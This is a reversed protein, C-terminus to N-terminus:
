GTQRDDLVGATDITRAIDSEARPGMLHVGAVGPTAKLAQMLEACIARGEAKPDAAGELRAIVADPIISGPLNDRIWTAQRASALPGIGMLVFVKQTIGLDM